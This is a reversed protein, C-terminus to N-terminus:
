DESEDDDDDWFDEDRASAAQEDTPWKEFCNHLVFLKDRLQGLRGEATEFERAAILGISLSGREEKSPVRGGDTWGKMAELQKALAQMVPYKPQRELFGHTLETAEGLIRFFDARSNIEGYVGAM